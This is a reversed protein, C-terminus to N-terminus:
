NKDNNHIRTFRNLMAPTLEVHKGTDAIELTYYPGFTRSGPYWKANDIAIITNITGTVPNKFKDGKQYTTM